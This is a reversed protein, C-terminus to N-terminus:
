ISAKRLKLQEIKARREAAEKDAKAKAIDEAARRRANELTASASELTEEKSRTSLSTDVYAPWTVASVEMIQRISTIRRTPHDTDLGEWKDEDVIFMFSMGSIDGRGTASYLAQATANGETDLDARIDMGEAGVILQMTSKSNNNRSRALPIMSTDHNVLLRVDKLDTKDLAGPEIYEDFWGNDYKSGFVIARGEIFHGHEENQQARLDFDFARCEKNNM